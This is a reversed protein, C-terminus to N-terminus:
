LPTKQGKLRPKQLLNMKHFTYILLSRDRLNLNEKFRPKSYKTKDEQEAIELLADDRIKQPLFSRGM